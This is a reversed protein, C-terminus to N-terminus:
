GCFSPSPPLKGLYKSTNACGGITIENAEGCYTYVVSESKSECFVSRPDADVFTSSNSLAAWGTVGNRVQCSWLSHGNLRFGDRCSVTAVDNLTVDSMKSVAHVTTNNFLAISCTEATIFFSFFLQCLLILFHLVCCWKESKRMQERRWSVEEREWFLFCFLLVYSWCSISCLPWAKIEICLPLFFFFFLLWTHVRSYAM